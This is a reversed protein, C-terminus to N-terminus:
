VATKRGLRRLAGAGGIVSLFLWAAAPLPVASVNPGTVRLIYDDDDGSGCLRGCGVTVFAIGVQSSGASFDLPELPQSNFQKEETQTGDAFTVRVRFQDRSNFRSPLDILSLTFGGGDTVRFYHDEGGATWANPVTGPLDVINDPTPEILLPEEGNQTFSFSSSFDVSSANALGASVLMAFAILLRRFM